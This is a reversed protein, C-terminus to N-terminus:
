QNVTKVTTAVGKDDYNTIKLFTVPDSCSKLDDPARIYVQGTIPM